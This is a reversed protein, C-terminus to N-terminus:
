KRDKIKLITAKLEKKILESSVNFYEGVLIAAYYKTIAFETFHVRTIKVM